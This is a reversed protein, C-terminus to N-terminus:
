LVTCYQGMSPSRILDGLAIEFREFFLAPTVATDDCYYMM